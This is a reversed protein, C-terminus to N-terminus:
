WKNYSVLTEIKKRIKKRLLYNEAPYGMTIVLGIRKNSPINLLQIIKPENFWGIMCTGLGLETAQLCIHEATIGLDTWEFERKKLWGAFQTLLKPKEVVIVIIVPARLSFSNILNQTITAQAVKQRLGPEDVIIFRWPQSNSASPALRAAELCKLVLENEVPKASYRRVSQRTHVLELFNM